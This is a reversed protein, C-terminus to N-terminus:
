EFAYFDRVSAVPPLPLPMASEAPCPNFLEAVAGGSGPPPLAGPREQEGNNMGRRAAPRPFPVAWAARAVMGVLNVWAKLYAKIKSSTEQHKDGPSLIEVALIPPGDLFTSDESMRAVLEASAYALDIGVNTDPNRRIRFYAEGTFVGGQPGPQQRLW